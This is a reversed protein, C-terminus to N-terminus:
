RNPLVAKAVLLIIIIHKLACYPLLFCHSLLRIPALNKVSPFRKASWLILFCFKHVCHKNKTSFKEWVFNNTCIIIKKSLFLDDIYLEM